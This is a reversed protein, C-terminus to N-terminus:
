RTLRIAVSAPLLVSVMARVMVTTSRFSLEGTKASPAVLESFTLSPVVM